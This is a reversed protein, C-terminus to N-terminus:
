WGCNGDRRYGYEEEPGYGRTDANFGPSGSPAGHYGYGGRHYPGGGYGHWFPGRGIGCGALVTLALGAAVVMLLARISTRKTKRQM